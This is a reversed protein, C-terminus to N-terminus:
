EVTKLKGFFLAILQSSVLPIITESLLMVFSYYLMKDTFGFNSLWSVVKDSIMSPLILVADVWITVVIHLTGNDERECKLIYILLMFIFALIYLSLYIGPTTVTSIFFIAGSMDSISNAVGGKRKNQQSILFPVTLFGAIIIISNIFDACYLKAIWEEYVGVLCFVYIIPIAFLYTAKSDQFKEYFDFCDLDNKFNFYDISIKVLYLIALFVISIVVKEM